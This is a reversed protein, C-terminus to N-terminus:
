PICKILIANMAISGIVKANSTHYEVMLSCLMMQTYFRVVLKSEEIELNM